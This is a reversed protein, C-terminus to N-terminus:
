TSPSPRRRAPSCCRASCRCASRSCPFVKKHPPRFDPQTRDTFTSDTGEPTATIEADLTRWGGTRPPVTHRRFAPGAVGRAECACRRSAHFLGRLLDFRGDSRQLGLARKEAIGDDGHRDRRQLFLEGGPALAVARRLLELGGGHQEHVDDARRLEALAEVGFVDVRHHVARELPQGRDNARM